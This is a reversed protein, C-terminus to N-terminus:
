RNLLLKKAFCGSATTVKAVIMGHYGQASLRLTGQGETSALLRGSSTYIQVHATESTQVIVEGGATRVAPTYTTAPRIGVPDYAKVACQAANVVRGTNADIMMVAVQLRSLDTASAPLAATIDARYERGAEVNTPIYGGTGNFTQGITTRVVHNHYFPYATGASLSGGEGWEGLDPDSIGGFTNRQYGKVNDELIVAFLNLNQNEAELAFKVTCPIVIGTSDTNFSATASIEADAPMTLEEQVLDLWLKEGNIGNFRYDGDVSIMPASILGSRNIIGSPAANLGLFSNYAELGAGLNDGTYTHLAIPIFQNGFTNSIKEIALKGLPCNVCSQGTMEELVVRKVPRFQLNKVSSKITNETDNFRVDISYANNKGNELPLANPFEFAYIDGKKLNLNEESLTSVVIGAANKLTLQASSYTEAETDITIRGKIIIDAKDVVSTENDLTVLFPINHTVEVNDIMIASQAENENVFAIYINKGAFTRLDVTYETWEGDLGEETAGPTLREHFVTTGENRMKEVISTNLVNYVSNSEWVIVRLMDTATNLYSQGQFKLVCLNDPIFVQPTVMWDDSKGAPEYCSHSCAAMDTSSTNDRVLSWPYNTADAFGWSQMASNPMRCDGEYLMFNMLGNNFNDQFITKDDFSIEREYAGVYNLVIESNGNNGALDTIAGAPIVVKYRVDKYLYETTAPYVAVQKGGYSMLLHACPAADDAQYLDATVAESIMVDTDFTLIIPNGLYDIQAFTANDAPYVKTLQVPVDARGMYGINIDKNTRKEDGDICISGAPIHLTYAKGDELTGKRFTINVTKSQNEASFGLSTYVTSGEADRIEVCNAAGLVKINREFGIKIRQLKSLATGATPSVAYQGLLDIDTCASVFTEPIELVYSGEIDAMVAMKCGDDSITMPTGTNAYGTKASYDIGYKQKLILDLDFWYQGSRVSWDRYPNSIPSAGMVNGLNDVVWGGKDADETADFLTFEGTAVNMLYPAEHESGFESGEVDKVIHASGTVWLGNNSLRANSIHSMNDAKAEWSFVPDDIFGVMSYSENETDYVYYCLGGAYLNMPLYSFSMCGLIYRGDASINVFRNQGKDEHAMDKTPIGPTPILEGTSIDWLAQTEKYLDSAYTLKGVAYRGDATVSFAVGGNAETGTSLLTYRGTSKSWYAPQENFEGVVISGDNSVDNAAASIIDSEDYAATLLTSEETEINILRPGIRFLTNDANTADAAAWLGNDSMSNILANDDFKFFRFHPGGQAFVSHAFMPSLLLLLTFLNKKM